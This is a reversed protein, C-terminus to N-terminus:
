RLLTKAFRIIKGSRDTDSASPEWVVWLDRGDHAVPCGKSDPGDAVLPDPTVGYTKGALDQLDPTYVDTYTSSISGQAAFDLRIIKAEDGSNGSEDYKGIAWFNLGDFAMARVAEIDSSGTTLLAAKASILSYTTDYHYAVCRSNSFDDEFGMLITDGACCLSGVYNSASNPDYSGANNTAGTGGPSAIPMSVLFVANAVTDRAGYYVNTGDSCLGRGYTNVSPIYAVGGAGEGDLTGDTADIIGVAASTAATIANWSQLVALKDTAAYIIKPGGDTLTFSGSGTLDLGTTSWDPHPTWDSMDYAQVCYVEPSADTDQFLVYAYTGDNCIDVPYWDQTGSTDLGGSLDNESELSLTAIDLVDVECGTSYNCALLKKEGGIRTYDLSYYAKTSDSTDLLCGPNTPSHLCDSSTFLRKVFADPGTDDAVGKAIQNITENLKSDARYFQRNLRTYRVREDVFGGDVWDEFTTESELAGTSGLPTLNDISM